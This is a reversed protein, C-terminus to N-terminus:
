AARGFWGRMKQALTRRQPQTQGAPDSNSDQTAATVAEATAPPSPIREAVGDTESSERGSEDTESTGAASARAAAQSLM